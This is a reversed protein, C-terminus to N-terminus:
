SEGRVVALLEVRVEDRVDDPGLLRVRTGLEYLRRRFAARHTVRIILHVEDGDGAVRSAAGLMGEVHRRHESTTAVRVEAPPDVQWSIPDLQPRVPTAPVPASGPADPAVDSMRAVAFTKPESSGLEQGTLYWGGRRLHLAHPVVVRASDRYTFRLLCHGAVARQVRALATDDRTVQTAFDPAREAGAPAGGLGPVLDVLGGAQAARVLEYRQEPTLELRLRNDVATLRYRAPDGPEAVNDIAWGLTELHRVDRRLQDRRDELTEAGYTVVDLIDDGPLTHAPAASLATLIQTLREM